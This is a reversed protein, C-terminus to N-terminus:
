NNLKITHCAVQAYHGHWDDTIFAVDGLISQNLKFGRVGLLNRYRNLLDDVCEDESDYLSSAFPGMVVTNNIIDLPDYELSETFMYQKIMTQLIVFKHGDARAANSTTILLLSVITLLPKM